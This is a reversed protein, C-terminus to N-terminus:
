LLRCKCVQQWCPDQRAQKQGHPKQQSCGFCTSQIVHLKLQLAERNLIQGSTLLPECCFVRESPRLLKAGDSPRRSPPQLAFHDRSATTYATPGALIFALVGRRSPLFCPGPYAHKGKLLSLDKM